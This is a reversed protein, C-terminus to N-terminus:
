GSRQIRLAAMLQDLATEPRARPWDAMQHRFFTRQRKAYRRTDGQGEAIAADLALEGRLHRTLAPAGHAKLITRGAPLQRAALTAVEALAGQDMMALFRADIRARLQEPEVDLVVRVTSDPTLFPPQLDSQWQSLPRGTAAEVELARLLRQRDNAGIRAAAVPDVASLRAHLAANEAGEAAERVAARVEEPIPPVEALGQTLARFYLGTGGVLIPLQGAQAAAAIAAKADKVWHGVSYNAAGDVHGYLLHPARALDAASPRATLVELDGYVQMSDANLVMGGTREALAVALASKGSATPGAILVAAQGQERDPQEM